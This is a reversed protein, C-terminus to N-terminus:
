IPAFTKSPFKKKVEKNIMDLTKKGYGAKTYYSSEKLNHKSFNSHTFSYILRKAEKNYAELKIPEKFIDESLTNWCINM